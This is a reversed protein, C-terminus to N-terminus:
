RKTVKGHCSARLVLAERQVLRRTRFLWDSTNIDIGSPRMARTRGQVIKQRRRVHSWRNGLPVRALRLDALFGDDDRLVPGLQAVARPEVYRKDSRVIGVYNWMLEGNRLEDHLAGAHALFATAQVEGDIM